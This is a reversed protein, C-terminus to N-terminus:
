KLVLGSIAPVKPTTVQAWQAAMAVPILRRVIEGANGPDARVAIVVTDVVRRICPPSQAM